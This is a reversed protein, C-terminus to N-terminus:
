AFDDRPRKESEDASTLTRLPETGVRGFDVLPAGDSAAVWVPSVPLNRRTSAAQRPRAQPYLFSDLGAQSARVKRQSHM